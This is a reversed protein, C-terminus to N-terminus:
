WLRNDTSASILATSPYAAQLVELRHGAKQFRNEDEPQQGCMITM